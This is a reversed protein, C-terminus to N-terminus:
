QAAEVRIAIVGTFGSVRLSLINTTSQDTFPTAGSTLRQIVPDVGVSGASTPRSDTLWFSVAGGFNHPLEVTTTGAVPINYFNIAQPPRDRAVDELGSRLAELQQEASLSRLSKATRAQPRSQRIRQNDYDIHRIL